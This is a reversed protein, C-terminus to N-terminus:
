KPPISLESTLDGIGLDERLALSVLETCAQKPPNLM